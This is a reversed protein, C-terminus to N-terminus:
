PNDPHFTLARLRYSNSPCTCSDVIYAAQGMDDHPKAVYGVQWGQPKDPTAV